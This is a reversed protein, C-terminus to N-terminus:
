YKVKNQILQRKKWARPVLGWMHKWAGLAKPDKLLLYAHFAGEYALLAPFRAWWKASFRENKIIMLYRNIYSHRRISLPMRGRSAGSQWQRVHVARASPEYRARWGLLGARWSVDVDEKYAFFDEDFFQEEIAIEKIMRMAYLAAAGSVGFVDSGQSYEAVPAGAGREVARRAWNMDLGASDMRGSDDSRVLCGTALGIGRDASMITVLRSVYEPELTVDANLTLIYDTNEAEAIAQNQGGAFGNNIANEILKVQYPLKRVLEVTGDSSANDIIITRLNKWTQQSICSLCREIYKASNFTVICIAVAPQAASPAAAETSNM